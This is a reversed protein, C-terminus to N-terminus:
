QLDPGRESKQTSRFIFMINQQMTKYALILLFNIICLIYNRLPSISIYVSDEASM